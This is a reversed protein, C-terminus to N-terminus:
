ACRIRTHGDQGGQPNNKILQFITETFDRQSDAGAHGLDRAQCDMNLIESTEVSYYPVGNRECLYKIALLNKRANLESNVDNFFYERYFDKFPLDKQELARVVVTNFSGSIFYEVRYIAPIAHIVFKPKLIGLYHDILRFNCDLGAGGVGLNWVHTELMKSLRSPWSQEERIGIGMTHSCGIALGAPRDDFEECRFGQHNLRYTIATPDAWGLETLRNRKIPDNLNKQFNEKSDTGCWHIVGQGLFSQNNHVPGTEPYWLAM